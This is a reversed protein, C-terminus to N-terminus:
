ILRFQPPFRMTMGSEQVEELYSVGDVVVRRMRDKFMQTGGLVEAGSVNPSAFSYYRPFGKETKVVARSVDEPEEPRASPHM